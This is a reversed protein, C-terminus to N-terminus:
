GAHLIDDHFRAFMLRIDDKSMWVLHDKPLIYNPAWKQGQIIPESHAYGERFSFGSNMSIDPVIGVIWDPQWALYSMVFVYQAVLAGLGAGRITESVWLEGTYVIEGNIGNLASQVVVGDNNSEPFLRAFQDKWYESLSIEGLKEFRAAVTFVIAGDKSGTSWFLNRRLIDVRSPDFLANVYGRDCSKSIAAFERASDGVAVSIGINKLAEECYNAFLIAQRLTKVSM